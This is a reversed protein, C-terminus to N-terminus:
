LQINNEKLLLEIEHSSISERESKDYIHLLIISYNM